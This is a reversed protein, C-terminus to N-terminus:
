FNIIFSIRGIRQSKNKSWFEFHKARQDQSLRCDSHCVCEYMTARVRMHVGVQVSPLM